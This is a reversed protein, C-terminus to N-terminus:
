SAKRGVRILFEELAAICTRDRYVGQKREAVRERVANRWDLDRGLRAAIEVYDDLSDAITETVGMMQLIAASHRGRMLEGPMTVIPLAHALSELTTNGGSWGISDLIVDCQGMAAIFGATDLRPLYLCHAEANLGCAAFARALRARFVETVEPSEAFEIFVFQCDGVERAIAPFVRDYHPLYKFLSQGSWYAVAGQRLGLERRDIAVAPVEIPEYYLSINPLRVLHETYHAQGEPPEMLDSSLFYDLTPLGSTNPHAWAVAQVPALRLAALRAPVSDMGIEPYILIHPRDALITERWAELPRPEGVFKECQSAALTTVDDSKDGTYYGFLRFQRRDLESLWGKIPTKWASHNRFFGSVIGVRIPEDPRALPPLPATPFREAMARHILSGYLAQLERDNRGQYPLYFPQFSAAARLLSAGAGADIDAAISRLGAEYATRRREIEAEDSYVIRLECLCLAFRAEALDPKCALARRYSAEAEDIRGQQKLIKGLTYHAEAFDPKLALAKRIQALAEEHRDLVHLANALNNHAEAFRPKLALARELHPVAAASKGLAHLSAGLNNHAEALDPALALAREFERAAEVHRELAQLANGLNLHAQANKPALALSRRYHQIAEEYRQAMELAVGLDGHLEASRPERKLAQQMLEIAEVGRGQRARLVGLLRLAGPHGRDAALVIGYLREAEALRGERHAAVAAQFAIRPDLSKEPLRAV